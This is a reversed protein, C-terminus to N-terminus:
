CNKGKAKVVFVPNLKQQGNWIDGAGVLLPWDHEFGRFAVSHRRSLWTMVANMKKWQSVRYGCSTGYAVSFKAMNGDTFFTKPLVPIQGVDLNEPLPVKFFSFMEHSVALYARTTAEGKTGKGETILENIDALDDVTGLKSAPKVKGGKLKGVLQAKGKVAVRLM